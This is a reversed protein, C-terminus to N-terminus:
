ADVIRRVASIKDSSPIPRIRVVIGTGVAQIWTTADLAIGVHGIRTPDVSSVMFILDGAKIPENRWDVETGITSQM